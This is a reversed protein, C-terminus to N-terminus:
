NFQGIKQKNNEIVVRNLISKVIIKHFPKVILFYIRGFFNNFHVITILYIFTNEMDVLISVRFDLHKDNEGMIIENEQQAIIPFRTIQGELIAQNNKLGFIGVVSDRIGMLWNVWKPVKFIKATIGEVTDYTTNIIRYTDYYDIKDFGNTIVSNEPITTLKIVTKM